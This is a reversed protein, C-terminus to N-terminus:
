KVMTNKLIDIQDESSKTEDIKKFNNNIEKVTVDDNDDDDDSDDNDNDDDNVNNDENVIKNNDKNVIKNNDENVIKNNDENVIKNNNFIAEVLDDFLNLLIKQGNILGKKKTEAKKIENLANLKQKALVESITNNKINNIM